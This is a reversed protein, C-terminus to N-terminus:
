SLQLYDTEDRRTWFSSFVVGGRWVTKEHGCDNM